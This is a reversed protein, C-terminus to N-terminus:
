RRRALISQAAATFEDRFRALVVPMVVGDFDMRQRYQPAQNAFIFLPRIRRGERRWIGAQTRGGGRPVGVFLDNALKRGKRRSGDKRAPTSGRLNKLVAILKRSGAGSLNGNADLEAAQGPILWESSGLVGAYRLATEIRKKKRGGGFVEPTLFNEPRTGTGGAQDKVMVRSMLTDKTAPVVRTSNLTYRTPSRFVRPMADVVAAQGLKATRTLASAAAYPIVRAPVDRVAAIVDAISGQRSITFM